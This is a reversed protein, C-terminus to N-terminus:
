NTLIKAYGEVILIHWLPVLYSAFGVVCIFLGVGGFQTMVFASICLIFFTENFTPNDCRNKYKLYGAIPNFPFCPYIIIGIPFVIVACLLGLALILMITQLMLRNPVTSFTKVNETTKALLDM